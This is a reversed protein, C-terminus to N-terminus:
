EPYYFSGCVSSCSHMRRQQMSLLVVYGYEGQCFLDLPIIFIILYLSLRLFICLLTGFHMHTKPRTQYSSIYERVSPLYPRVGISLNVPSVMLM